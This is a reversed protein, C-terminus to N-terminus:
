RKDIVITNEAPIIKYKTTTTQSIFDIVNELSNNRIVGEYTYHRVEESEFVFTWNYMRTLTKCIEELTEGYFTLEKSRWLLLDSNSHLDTKEFTQTLRTYEVRENPRMIVKKKNDDVQVKGEVLIVSITRDDTHARVNFSTGLAKVNIGNAKVVFPKKENRAVEFYAEGELTVIRDSRNYAPDYKIRSDSNIFVRTGDALVVDAKQGNAVSMVIPDGALQYKGLTYGGAGVILVICAVAAAYRLLRIPLLRSSKEKKKLSTEEMNELIDSFIENQLAEDMEEPALHWCRWYYEYFIQRAEPSRIWEKLIQNEEETTIGQFFRDILEIYEKKKM